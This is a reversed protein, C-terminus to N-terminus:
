SGPLCDISYIDHCNQQLNLEQQVAHQHNGDGGKYCADNIDNRAEVCHASTDIKGLLTECADVHNCSRSGHNKCAEDVKKQLVRHQEEDCHGPDKRPGFMPIPVDKKVGTGWPFIRIIEDLVSSSCETISGMKQSLLSTVAGRISGGLAASSCALAAAGVSIGGTPAAAAGAPVVAIAVCTGGVLAGSGLAHEVIRDVDVPDTIVAWCADGSAAATRREASLDFSPLHEVGNPCAQAHDSCCDGNAECQADCWCSGDSGQGGCHGSCTAAGNGGGADCHQGFDPCCDGNAECQEDCWCGGDSGQGGCHGSCTAAPPPAGDTGCHQAYDGCCDGNAECQADCHCSGDSGVGGCHAACTSGAAGDGAGDGGPQPDDELWNADNRLYHSADSLPEDLGEQIESVPVDDPGEAGAIGAHGSRQGGDPDCASTASGVGLALAVVLRCRWAWAVEGSSAKTNLGNGDGVVLLGSGTFPERAAALAGM